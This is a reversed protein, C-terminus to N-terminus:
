DVLDPVTYSMECPLSMAIVIESKCDSEVWAHIDLAFSSVLECTSDDEFRPFPDGHREARFIYPPPPTKTTCRNM